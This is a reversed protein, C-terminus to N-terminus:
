LGRFRNQCNGEYNEYYLESEIEFCEVKISSGKDRSLPILDVGELM